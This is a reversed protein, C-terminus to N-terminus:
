IKPAYVVTWGEDPYIHTKLRMDETTKPHMDILLYSYNERTADGYVELFYASRQGPFLQSALNRVQLAGSPNKMLVLYHSNTRPARLDRHFLHQTALVVSAGWNHSGVTFLLELFPSKGVTTMLDDLVVLLRRGCKVASEKVLEETPFGCHTIVRGTNENRKLQMVNDNLAGYCYLICQITASQGKVTTAKSAFEDSLDVLEDLYSLLKMLWITKGSSTAGSIVMTFPHHFLYQSM